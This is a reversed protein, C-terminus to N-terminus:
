WPTFLNGIPGTSTTCAQMLMGVAAIMALRCNRIEKWAFDKASAETKGFKLPNFSFDGPIRQGSKRGETVAIGSIVSFFCPFFCSHM